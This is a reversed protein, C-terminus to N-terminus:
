KKSIMVLERRLLRPVHCARWSRGTGWIDKSFRTLGSARATNSHQLVHVWRSTSHKIKQPTLGKLLCGGGDPPNNLPMFFSSHLTYPWIPDHLIPDHIPDYLTMCYMPGQKYELTTRYPDFKASDMANPLYWILWMLFMLCDVPHIEKSWVARDRMTLHPLKTHCHTMAGPTDGPRAGLKSVDRGWIPTFKLASM